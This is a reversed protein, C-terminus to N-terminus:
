IKSLIKKILRKDSRIAKCAECFAEELEQSYGHEMAIDGLKKVYMMVRSSSKLISLVKKGRKAKIYYNIAAQTMGLKEAVKMQTLKYKKILYNAVLARLGPLVYRVYLECRM